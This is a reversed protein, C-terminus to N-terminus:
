WFILDLCFNRVASAWDFESARMRRIAESIDPRNMLAENLVSALDASETVFNPTELPVLEVPGGNLMGPSNVLLRLQAEADKVRALTRQIGTQARAVAAQARLVQRPLTDLQSRGQLRALVDQASTLLKQRQFFEARARYLAWYADTVDTLHQQLAEAVQDQSSNAQIRALIIESENYARGAGDLLPQRYSLELRSTAQNNPVFFTSNQNEHGINQAIRFEGGNLNKNRFGGSGRYKQVLLRDGNGGVTLTNGVPDNLNDYTNELFATWDFKAAEQTVVRYQVEPEARIAMVQPSYLLADQLLMSVDVPLMQGSNGSGQRVPHDWWPAFGAPIPPLQMMGPTLQSPDAMTARGAYPTMWPVADCEMTARSGSTGPQANTGHYATAPSGFSHGGISEGSRQGNPFSGEQMLQETMPSDGFTPSSFSPVSSSEELGFSHGQYSDSSLPPASLRIGPIEFDGGSASENMLPVASDTFPIESGTNNSDIRQVPVAASDTEASPVTLIQQEQAKQAAIAETPSSSDGILMREILWFSPQSGDPPANQSSITHTRLGQNRNEATEASTVPHRPVTRTQGNPSRPVIQIGGSDSETSPQAAAPSQGAPMGGFQPSKLYAAPTVPSAPYWQPPDGAASLNQATFTLCAVGLASLGLVLAMPRFHPLSDGRISSKRSNDPSESM